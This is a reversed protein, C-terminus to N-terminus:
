VLEEDPRPYRVDVRETHIPPATYPDSEDNCDRCVRLGPADGDPSLEGLYMKKKCRDCVAVACSGGVVRYPLYRM